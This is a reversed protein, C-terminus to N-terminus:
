RSASFLLWTSAITPQCWAPPLRAVRSADRYPQGASSDVCTGVDVPGLVVVEAAGVVDPGPVAVAAIFVGILALFDATAM